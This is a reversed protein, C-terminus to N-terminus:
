KKSNAGRFVEDVACMIMEIGENIKADSHKKLLTFEVEPDRIHKLRLTSDTEASWSGMDVGSKSWQVVGDVLLTERIAESHRHKQRDEHDSIRLVVLTKPSGKLRARGIAEIYVSQADDGRVDGPIARIHQYLETEDAMANADFRLNCGDVIGERVHDLLDVILPSVVDGWATVEVTKRINM